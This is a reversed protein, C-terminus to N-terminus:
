LVPWQKFIKDKKKEELGKIASSDPYLLNTSAYETSAEEFFPKFIFKVCFSMLKM